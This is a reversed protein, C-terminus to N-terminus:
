RAMNWSSPRQKAVSGFSRLTAFGAFNVRYWVSLVSPPSVHASGSAIVLLVSYWQHSGPATRDGSPFCSATSSRSFLRFCLEPTMKLVSSPFVHVGGRSTGPASVPSRCM